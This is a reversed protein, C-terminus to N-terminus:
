KILRKVAAKLTNTVFDQINIDDRLCVFKVDKLVAPDVKVSGSKEKTKVKM